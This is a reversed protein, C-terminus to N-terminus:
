RRQWGTKQWQLGSADPLIHQIEIRFGGPEANRVEGLLLQGDWELRVAAGCAPRLEASVRMRKGSFELIHVAHAARDACAEEGLVWLEAAQDPKWNLERM